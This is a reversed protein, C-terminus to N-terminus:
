HNPLPLTPPTFSSTYRGVGKTVRVCAWYGHFGNSGNTYGGLIMGFTSTTYNNSDAASSGFQTGDVFCKTTGSNRSFAIHHWASSSPSTATIKLANSWYSENNGNGINNMGLLPRVTDPNQRFEFFEQVGTTATYRFMGEVTFDGTGVNFDIGPWNLCSQNATASGDGNLFISSTMGAPAQATSYVPAGFGSGLVNASVNKPSQDLFTLTGNAANDNGILLVVSSFSPDISVGYGLLTAVGSM